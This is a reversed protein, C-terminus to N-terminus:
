KKSGLLTQFANKKWIKKGYDDWVNTEGEILCFRALWKEMQEEPTLEGRVTNGQSIGADGSREVVPIEEIEPNQGQFNNDFNNPPAPSFTLSSLASEIQAKM